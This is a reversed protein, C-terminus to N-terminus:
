RLYKNKNANHEALSKSFITKGTEPDSLFYVYDTETPYIAATIANLGPNAIPGPPLGRYKYTNYPSDIKTQEITHGGIKDNYIYSLTSDAQLPMGAEIRNWFVGSVIKMDDATRVEKEILSAMTIIDYISKNQGAIDARMQATLKKEFNDLMKKIVDQESAGAFIRYTDPFLYGELGASKPADALFESRNFSLKWEAGSSQALRSFEAASVAGKKELYDAMDKMNWGEILTITKDRRLAQGASLIKIIERASLAPSILYEAAQIGLDERWIVYRFYFTSKILNAKNLNDAIQMITEGKSVTFVQERGQKDVPSNLNNWYLFGAAFIVILIILIKKLM